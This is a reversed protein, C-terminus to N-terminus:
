SSDTVASRAASITLGTAQKRPSTPEQLWPHQLLDQASPRQHADKRLCQLIFDQAADSACSGKMHVEDEVIGKITVLADCHSFPTKGLLLEHLMAGLAWIDAAPGYALAPCDRDTCRLVEPAMYDLTGLRSLPREQHLDIATGFDALKVRGCALLLNEPKLDRFVIGQQHLHDLALLTPRLVSSVIWAGTLPGSRSIHRLLDGRVAFELILVLNQEDEFAGHLKAIHEHDLRGQIEIERQVLRRTVVSLTCKAYVKLAVTTNSPCHIAQYVTSNRGGGVRRLLRFDSLSWASSSHLSTPCSPAVLVIRPWRPM